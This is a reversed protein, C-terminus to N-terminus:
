IERLFGKAKLKQFYSSGPYRVLHMRRSSRSVLVTDGKRLPWGSQGDLTLFVEATEENVRVRIEQDAPFVFPKVETLFSCIPTACIVELEPYILPGGASYSYASAGTPTSLVLGDARLATIREDAFFLELNVLRALNGRGVVIDNVAVTSLLTADDRVLRVDLLLRSSVAAGNALIDELVEKWAERSCETLFGVRAFNIGLLAMDNSCIKRAVSIMTGDGGLVLALTPTQSQAPLCASLDDENETVRAVIGRRTLWGSIENALGLAEGHGQKVVLLISKPHIRSMGHGRM